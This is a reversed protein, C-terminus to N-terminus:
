WQLRMNVNDFVKRLVENILQRRKALLMVEQDETLSCALSNCVLVLSASHDDTSKYLIAFEGVNAIGDRQLVRSANVLNCTPRVDGIRM